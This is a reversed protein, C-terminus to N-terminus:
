NGFESRLYAILARIEDNTLSSMGGNAPMSLAAGPTALGESISKALEEDSKALPGDASTFDSVGPLVGKGNEGHCAICTQSYFAKGAVADGVEVPSGVEAPDCPPSDTPDAASSVVPTMFSALIVVALRSIARSYSFLFM